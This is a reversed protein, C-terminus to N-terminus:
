LWENTLRIYIKKAGELTILYAVVIGVFWIWYNDPLKAFDFTQRLPTLIIVFAVGIAALSSVIVPWSAISQIFPLKKTRVVHVVLIQTVLGIMFWGAQFLAQDAVTNASFVFWLVVFTLIDFLSSVPGICLTFKLLGGIQWKVPKELEEEDVNDWPITLQAIGYILNQVLLQMSLMPLFPLFASATLISFVNGFNSSITIKIYKMINSFVRRGEVVGYDLVDLSKELLIISSADKTIDAATDVSIGVDAMRLAPADNIGDGMFGVTHGKSQIAAIIRSKQMPHLKAFLNVEETVSALEEDSMQDIDTGLLFRQADIGVDRCVKQAVIENDGTLVKVNVGHGQLSHIATAASKKAPDLFGMFGIITMEKEDAVSYVADSHADKRTSVTLVRMGQENLRRNVKRMQQRLDETIEMVEGNINVHSCVAEMEEVAGKTIMLQHGDAEMVVTLRRRSFDFPIEDIKKLEHYPLQLNNEEFYNIVAIDMLNKWGTQYSSNLYAINLVEENAEGLPNLHQVLVVRDETITGTKDTCLVDMSGLNQISPLEKVIVKEKSLTLAGKALNSTVIMPLMEPTLGVAVAIAFFFAESWDGKTFGNLLFVVPFLVLVMRLLLKSVRVLGDDFTTKGRKKTANKAIDGFFTHQGTKLIIAKGQGSLVDTGMFVLDQMDLASIERENKDIGSDVFKEVPMSEGTLSSQNVFLDNTWILVADAPIMDGTALSVIDGPVVEDMPIEKVENDRIVACTNEILEKLAESAKQSRYNQIFSITVSAFIMVAMVIAAEYDRALYSVVMLGSLVLVFADKFASLFIRWASSPNEADVKNPGYEELREKADEQTLGQPASRLETYLERETLFAMKKLEQEKTEPKKLM